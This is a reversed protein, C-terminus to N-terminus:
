AIMKVFNGFQFSVVFCILSEINCKLKLSNTIKGACPACVPSGEISYFNASGEFTTKCEKFCFM